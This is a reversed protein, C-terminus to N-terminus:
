EGTNNEIRAVAAKMTAQSKELSSGTQPNLTDSTCWAPSATSTSAKMKQRVTDMISQDTSSPTCIATTITKGNEISATTTTPNDPVTKNGVYGVVSNWQKGISKDVAAAHSNFDDLQKQASVVSALSKSESPVRQISQGVFNMAKKYATSNMMHQSVMDAASGNGLMALQKNSVSTLYKSGAKGVLRGIANESQQAMALQDKMANVSATLSPAIAKFASDIESKIGSQVSHVMAQAGNTLAALNTAVAKRANAIMTSIDKLPQLLASLGKANKLSAATTNTTQQTIKVDPLMSAEATSSNPGVLDTSGKMTLSMRALEIREAYIASGVIRVTKGIVIYVDSSKVPKTPDADAQRYFVPDFLQVETVDFVLVSLRESFLALLKVNQHEAQQYHSHTNGCDIPSVDIRVNSLKKKLESNIALFGGKTKVDVSSHKAVLGDLTNETRTSGYNVFNNTIGAVSREKTQRVQYVQLKKDAESILANHSFVYKIKERDINIVDILNRFRLEGLSTLGLSMGSNADMWAHRVVDLLFSSRSNVAHLWVQSDNMTRGNFEKPGSYTLGCKAAMARFVDDSTGKVSESVAESIYKPSDHYGVLTLAPGQMANNGGPKFMRYKRSVYQKDSMSKSVTIELQNADSLSKQGVLVSTRDALELKFAPTRMLNGETLTVSNFGSPLDGIDRGDLKISVFVRNEIGFM